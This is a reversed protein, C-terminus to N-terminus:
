ATKEPSNLIAKLYEQKDWLGCGGPSEVMNDPNERITKLFRSQLADKLSVANLNKDSYPVFPCPEVDGIANIHVFGRGAALCGGFQEEDGPLNIFLAAFRDRFAATKEALEKRQGATIVLDETGAAVPSYEMFFFLQCGLQNLDKIFNENSITKQNSRTVTFCTGWFINKRKLAAVTKKIHEFIGEGRRDDTEAQNGELSIVPIINRHQELAALVRDDIMTGNTFMIFQINPFGAAIELIEPRALPEGGALVVFSIGLESGEAIVSKIREASLEEKHEPRLSRNYCGKCHLNCRNTVSFIMIPPVHLGKKAYASRINGAKVQQQVTKIFAYAQSPSKACIKFANWFFIRLSRDLLASYNTNNGTNSTSVTETPKAITNIM